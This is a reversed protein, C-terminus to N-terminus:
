FGALLFDLLEIDPIHLRLGVGSGSLREIPSRGSGCRRGQTGLMLELVVLFTPAKRQGQRHHEGHPRTYQNPNQSM